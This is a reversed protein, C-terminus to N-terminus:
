VVLSIHSSEGLLYSYLLTCTYVFCLCCMSFTYQCSHLCRLRNSDPSSEWHLIPMLTLMGIQQRWTTPVSSSVFLPLSLQAIGCVPISNFQTICFFVFVHYFLILYLSLLLYFLIFYFLIFIIAFLFCYTRGWCPDTFLHCFYFSTCVCSPLEM